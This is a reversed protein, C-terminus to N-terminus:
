QPNIRRLEGRGDHVGRQNPLPDHSLGGSFGLQQLVAYGSTPRSGLSGRIPGAMEGSRQVRVHAATLNWACPSCVEAFTRLVIARSDIDM